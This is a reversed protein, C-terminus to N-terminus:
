GIPDEMPVRAGDDEDESKCASIIDPDLLSDVVVRDDETPMAFPETPQINDFNPFGAFNENKRRAKDEFESWCV